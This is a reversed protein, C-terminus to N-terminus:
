NSAYNAADDLTLFYIQPRKTDGISVAVSPVGILNGYLSFRLINGLQAASLKGAKKQFQRLALAKICQAALFDIATFSRGIAWSSKHKRHCKVWVSMASIWIELLNPRLRLPMLSMYLQYTDQDVPNRSCEFSTTDQHSGKLFSTDKFSHLDVSPQRMGLPFSEDSESVIAHGIAADCVSCAIPGVHAAVGCVSSPIRISGGGDLGLALPVPVLGSAFAFAAASGIMCILRVLFIIAGASRLRAVPTDDKTAPEEEYGLFSTGIRHDKIHVEDKIAVLVGDLVGLPEGRAYCEASAQAQAMIWDDHKEVFVNPPYESQQKTEAAALLAKVVQVPTVEGSTYRVTYDSIQQTLTMYPPLDERDGLLLLTNKLLVVAAVM